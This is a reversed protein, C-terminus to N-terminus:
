TVTKTMNIYHPAPQIVLTVADLRTTWQARFREEKRGKLSFTTELGLPLSCRLCGPLRVHTRQHPSM